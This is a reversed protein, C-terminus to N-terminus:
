ICRRNHVPPSTVGNTMDFTILRNFKCNQKLYSIQRPPQPHPTKNKKKRQPPFHFLHFKIKSLKVSPRPFLCARKCGSLKRSLKYRPSAPTQLHAQSQPDPSQLITFVRQLFLFRKALYYFRKALFIFVKASFYFGQALFYFM